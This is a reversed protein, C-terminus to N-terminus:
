WNSFWLYFYRKRYLINLANDTTLKSRKDLVLTVCFFILCCVAFCGLHWKVTPWLLYYHWNGVNIINGLSFLVFSKDFLLNFFNSSIVFFTVKTNLNINLILACAINENLRHLIKKFFVYNNFIVFFFLYAVHLPVYEWYNGFAYGICIDFFFFVLWLSLSFTSGLLNFFFDEIWMNLRFFRFSDAIKIYEFTM